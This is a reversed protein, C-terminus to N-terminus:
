HKFNYKNKVCLDVKQFIINTTYNCLLQRNVILM